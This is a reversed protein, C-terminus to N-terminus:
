SVVRVRLRIVLGECLGLGQVALVLRLVTDNDLEIVDEGPGLPFPLLLFADTWKCVNHIASATVPCM